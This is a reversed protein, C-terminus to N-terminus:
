DFSIIPATLTKLLWEELRDDAAKMEKFKDDLRDTTCYLMDSIARDNRLQDLFDKAAPDNGIQSVLFMVATPEYGKETLKSRCDFIANKFTDGPEPYPAGDTITCVLVPRKFTEEEIAKYVLPDLIKSRLHTGIRTAGGPRVEKITTAVEDAFLRKDCNNNIFRLDVGCDDPVIKTAIRSIRDVLQAQNEYRHDREM